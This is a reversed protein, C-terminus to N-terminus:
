RPAEAPYEYVGRGTKRGLRGAKVYKVLLPCPRFKEGLTGHLYELVKLRVDWGVLDGLEFPGMPHNLGLKLAKDIDRASAVGEMLMFFAENGIMANIRSAAFGPFENIEVPEKGMARAMAVTAAVTEDSTELGRIVEVLAMRPVPNFFHMGVVREPAGSSAAIETISLASTNSALVADRPGHRVLTQFLTQKAALDEFIAEVVFSAESAARELDKAPLLNKLAADRIPGPVKGLQVGRDLDASVRAIGRAIQDDSSDNVLTRYGAVAAAQAIGAGMTGSGVVLVAGNSASLLIEM